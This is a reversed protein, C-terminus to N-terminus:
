NEQSLLVLISIGLAKSYYELEYDPVVRSGTEVRSIAKQNTDLGLLQLKAALQEQSIGLKERNERIKEGSVNCKGNHKYIKM